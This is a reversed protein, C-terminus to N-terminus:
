VTALEAATHDLEASKQEANEAQEDPSALTIAKTATACANNLLELARQKDGARVASRAERVFMRTEFAAQRFKEQYDAAETAIEEAVEYGLMEAWSRKQKLLVISGKIFRRLETLPKM